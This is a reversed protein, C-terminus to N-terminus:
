SWARLGLDFLAALRENEEAFVSQLAERTAPNMPPYRVTRLNVRDILRVLGSFLLSRSRWSGTLRQIRQSRALRSINWRQKSVDAAIRTGERGIHLFDCCKDIVGAPGQALDETLLVLLQERPFYRLYRGLQRAYRGRDAYSFHRREHFGQAIRAPEQQLAEEFTLTERGKRLQHWYHSYARDVPNRLIFILRVSPLLRAIRSPARPEYIYLPSTQGVAIHEREVGVFHGRYWEVGKKFNEEIDFFHLEQLHPPVYVVDHMSLYHHLTTTGSKQAGAIIFTPLRALRNEM